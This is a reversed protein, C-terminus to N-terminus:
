PSRIRSAYLVGRRLYPPRVGLSYFGPSHSLVYGLRALRRAFKPYDLRKHYTCVSLRLKVAERLLDAAGELVEWDAGDVDIQIFNPQSKGALFSDLRVQQQTDVAGLALPVVEVKDKWPQLTASLPERWHTGPEFLYAKALREIVSLCFIADSAGVFVAVDGPDVTQGKGLYCHPSRPDQEMRAVCVAAQVQEATFTRPFFVRRGEVLAFLMGTQADREVTVDAARYQQAWDYPPSMGLPLEASPRAALFALVESVEPDPSSQYSRLLRQRLGKKRQQYWVEHLAAKLGSSRLKTIWENM